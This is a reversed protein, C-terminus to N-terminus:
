VSMPGAPREPVRSVSMFGGQQDRIRKGTTISSANAACACSREAM